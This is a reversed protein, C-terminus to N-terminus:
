RRRAGTEVQGVATEDFRQGFGLDFDVALHQSIQGHVFGGREGRDDWLTL